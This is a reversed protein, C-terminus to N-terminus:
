RRIEIEGVQWISRKKRRIVRRVLVKVDFMRQVINGKGTVFVQKTGSLVIQFVIRDFYCSHM